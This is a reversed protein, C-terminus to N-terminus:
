MHFCQLLYKQGNTNKIKLGFATHLHLFTNELPLNKRKKNQDIAKRSIAAQHTKSMPRIPSLAHM